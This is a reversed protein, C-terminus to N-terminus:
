SPLRPVCPWRLRPPSRAGARRQSESLKEIAPEAPVAEAALHCRGGLGVPAVEAPM